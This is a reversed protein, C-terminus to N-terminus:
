AAAGPQRQDYPADLQQELGDLFTGQEDILRQAAAMGAARAGTTDEIILREVYKNFDLRRSRAAAKGAELVGEDLRVQTQRNTAVGSPLLTTAAMSPSISAPRVAGYTKAFAEIAKEAHGGDEALAKWLGMAAGGVVLRSRAHRSPPLRTASGGVGRGSADARRAGKRRM